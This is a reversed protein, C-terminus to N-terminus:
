RHSGSRCNSVPGVRRQDVHGQPAAAVVVRAAPRPQSAQPAPVTVYRVPPSAQPAPVAVYRVPRSSQGILPTTVAMQSLQRRQRATLVRLAQARSNAQATRIQTQLRNLEAQKRLIARNNPRPAQQLSRLQQAKTRIQGELRAVRTDTTRQLQQLRKVQRTSLNLGRFEYLWSSSAQSHYAINPQGRSGNQGYAKAPSNRSTNQQGWQGNRGRDDAAATAAMALFLMGVIGSTMVRHKM